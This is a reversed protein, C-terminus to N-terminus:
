SSMLRTTHLQCHCRPPQTLYMPTMTHPFPNKSTVQCSQDIRQWVGFKVLIQYSKKIRPPSHKLLLSNQKVLTRILTTRIKLKFVAKPQVQEKCNYNISMTTYSQMLPHLIRVLPITEMFIKCFHTVM